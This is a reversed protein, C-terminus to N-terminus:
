NIKKSKSLIKKPDEKVMEKEYFGSIGGSVIFKMVDAPHVDIARIQDKPVIFLEGSFNYSHPFYVAVKEPENFMGLNEETLFGLKELNTVPNVRVMVPRNFKRENGLLSTFLDSLASYLINLVPISALIREIGKKFPKGLYTQAFYGLLILILLFMLIGLGPIVPGILSQIFGALVDDIFFFISTILYVTIALPAIFLLGQLMFRILLRIM